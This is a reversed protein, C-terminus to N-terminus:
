GMNRTVAALLKVPGDAKDFYDDAAPALRKQKDVPYVSAVLVKQRPNCEKIISFLEAGDVGSMRLDLIVLDFDHRVLIETAEEADAADTVDYLSISVAYLFRKYVKRIREEDDVILIRKKM